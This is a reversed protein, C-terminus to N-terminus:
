VRSSSPRKTKLDSCRKASTKSASTASCQSSPHSIILTTKLTLRWLHKCPLNLKRAGSREPRSNWTRANSHRNCTRITLGYAILKDPDLWIRMASNKQGSVCSSSRRSNNSLEGGVNERLRNTGTIVSCQKARFSCSPDSDPDAKSVKPPSDLDQPLQRTAQSVKERVDNAATELDVGLDFEIYYQESGSELSTINKIGAVGNISKKLPETIQSEIIEANAGTYSTRVNVVPPDIAPYERVGLFTYGIAGFIIIVISLVIALVPRKLSLESLNM